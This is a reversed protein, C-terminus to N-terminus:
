PRDRLVRLGPHAVRLGAAGAAQGLRVDYTIFWDLETM